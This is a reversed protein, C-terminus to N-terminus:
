GSTCSAAAQFLGPNRHGSTASPLSSLPTGETPPRRAAGLSGPLPLPPLTRPGLLRQLAARQGRGGGGCGHGVRHGALGLTGAAAVLGLDTVPVGAERVAAVVHGETLTRRELVGRRRGVM